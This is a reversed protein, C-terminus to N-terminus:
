LVLSHISKCSDRQTTQNQDTMIDVMSKVIIIPKSEMLQKYKGTLRKMQIDLKTREGKNNM